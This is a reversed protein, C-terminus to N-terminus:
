KLAEKRALDGLDVKMTKQMAKMTYKTCLNRAM